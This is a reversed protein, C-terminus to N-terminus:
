GEDVRGLLSEATEQFETPRGAAFYTEALKVGLESRGPDKQAAQKLLLIAEDYLGYALHFDAEAVPDNADLNIQM